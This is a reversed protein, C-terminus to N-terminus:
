LLPRPNAAPWEALRAIEELADLDTGDAIVIDLDLDSYRDWNARGLSGFVIVALVRDDRAYYTAVARLLARHRATGPYEDDNLRIDEM